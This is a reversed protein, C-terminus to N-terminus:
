DKKTPLNRNRMPVLLDPDMIYEKLTYGNYLTTTIAIFTLLKFIDPTKFLETPRSFMDSTENTVEKYSIFYSSSEYEICISGGSFRAKWGADNTRMRKLIVNLLKKIMKFRYLKEKKRQSTLQTM